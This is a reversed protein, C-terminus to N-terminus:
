RYSAIANLPKKITAYEPITVDHAPHGVVLLVYPKENRPRDLIENLFGMPSPTHPLTALGAAHLAAILFGTAIGVSEPVYYNKKPGGIGSPTREAFVAILWPATELFPKHADTGLPALDSLWEVGARGGYFSREEEEAAARITRKTEADGVIVFHWPQHNAGSPATGAAQVCIQIVELPVPRTDFSRVTRRQSITDFFGNARSIIDTDSLEPRDPLPIQKSM